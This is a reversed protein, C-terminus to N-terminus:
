AELLHAGDINSIFLPKMDEEWFPQLAEEVMAAGLDSGGVGIKVITKIKEGTFGTWSGSHIKDCLSKIRKREV